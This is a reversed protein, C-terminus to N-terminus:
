RAEAVAVSVGASAGPETRCQLNGQSLDSPVQIM